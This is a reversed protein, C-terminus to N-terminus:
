VDSKLAIASSSIGSDVFVSGTRFDIQASRTVNLLSTQHPLVTSTFSGSAESPSSEGGQGKLFVLM